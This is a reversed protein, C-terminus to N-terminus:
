LNINLNGGSLTVAESFNVSINIEDGIKFSGDSTSSTVSSITPATQDIYYTYAAGSNSGGDDEGHAGM